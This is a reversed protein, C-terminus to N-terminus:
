ELKTWLMKAVFLQIPRKHEGLSYMSFDHKKQWISKLIFSAKQEKVKKDKKWSCKPGSIGWEQSILSQYLEAEKLM